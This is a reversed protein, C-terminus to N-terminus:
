EETGLPKRTLSRNCILAHIDNRSSVLLVSDTGGQVWIGELTAFSRPWAFACLGMIMLGRQRWMETHCRICILATRSKPLALFAVADKCWRIRADWPRLLRLLRLLALFGRRHSWRSPHHMWSTRQWLLVYLSLRFNWSWFCKLLDIFFAIEPMSWIMGVDSTVVNRWCVTM